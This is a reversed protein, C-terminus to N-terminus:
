IMDRYQKYVATNWHSSLLCSLCIKNLVRIYFLINALYTNYQDPLSWDYLRIKTMLQLQFLIGVALWM